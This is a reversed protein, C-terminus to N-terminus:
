VFKRGVRASFGLQDNVVFPNDIREVRVLFVVADAALVIKQQHRSVLRAAVRHLAGIDTSPTDHWEGQGGVRLAVFTFRAHIQGGSNSRPSKEERYEQLILSPRYFRTRILHSQPM